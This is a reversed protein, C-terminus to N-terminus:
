EERTDRGFLEYLPSYRTRTENLLQVGNPILIIALIASAPTGGPIPNAVVYLGVLVALPGLPYRLTRDLGGVNRDYGIGFLWRYLRAVPNPRDAGGTPEESM